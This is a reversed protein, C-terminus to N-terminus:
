STFSSAQIGVLSLADALLDGIRMLQLDNPHVQAEALSREAQPSKPTHDEMVNVLPLFGRMDVDEQLTGTVPPLRDAPFARSLARTFDAYVRWFEPIGISIDTINADRRRTPERENPTVAAKMGEVGQRVYDYNTKLWKSAIRLAPLTRRLVASIRQGLDPEKTDLEKLEDLGVEMLTRHLALAHHLLRAEISLSSLVPQPIADPKGKPVAFPEKLM